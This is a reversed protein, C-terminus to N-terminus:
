EGELKKILEERKARYVESSIEGAKYQDDLTIVADLLTTKKPDKGHRKQNLTGKKKSDVAILIVILVAFLLAGIGIILPYIENKDFCHLSLKEGAQINSGTFVLLPQFNASQDPSSQMGTCAVAKGQNEVMVMASTVQIPAIFEIAQGGEFPLDYEFMVQHVGGPLIPQWDSLTGDVMKLSQSNSFENFNVNQSKPSLIFQLLPTQDNEPSITFMSPNDILLSETVHITNEANYNLLIHLREGRLLSTDYIVDYVKIPLSLSDGAKINEGSVRASQYTIAKHSVEAVYSWAPNYPVLVFSFTGDGAVSATLDSLSQGGSTILLKAVSLDSLDTGSGNSVMGNITFYGENQSTQINGLSQSSSAANTSNGALSFNRSTVVMSWLQADSLMVSFTGMGHDNGSRIEDNLAANSYDPLLPESQWDTLVLGKSIAQSGDGKGSSGHCSLCLNQYILQGSSLSSQPAVLSLLYAVLDWRKSTSLASFSNGHDSNGESLYTFMETPTTQQLWNSSIPKLSSTKSIKVETDATTHCNACYQQFDSKGAALSPSLLPSIVTPEASEIEEGTLQTASKNVCGSIFFTFITVLPLWSTRILHNNM